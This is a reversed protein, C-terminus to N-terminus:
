LSYVEYCSSYCFFNLIRLVPTLDLNALVTRIKDKVNTLGYKGTNLEFCPEIKLELNFSNSKINSIFLISISLKQLRIM